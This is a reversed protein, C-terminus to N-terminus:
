KKAENEDIVTSSTAAVTPALRLKVISVFPKTEESFPKDLDEITAMSEVDIVGSKVNTFDIKGGPKEYWSIVLHFIPFNTEGTKFFLTMKKYLWKYMAGTLQLRCPDCIDHTSHLHLLILGVHGRLPRAIGSLFSPIQTNKYLLSLLRPESHWFTGVFGKVEKDEENGNLALAHNKELSQVATLYGLINKEIGELMDGRKYAGNNVLQAAYKSSECSLNQRASLIQQEINMLRKTKNDLLSEFGYFSGRVAANDRNSQAIAEVEPIGSYTINCGECYQTVDRTSASHFVCLQSESMMEHLHINQECCTGDSRYIGVKALVFNTTSKEKKKSEREKKKFEREKEYLDRHLESVYPLCQGYYKIPVDEEFDQLGFKGEAPITAAYLEACLQM